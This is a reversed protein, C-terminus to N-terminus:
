QLNMFEKFYRLKELNEPNENERINKQLRELVVDVLEGDHCIGKIPFTYKPTYKSTLEFIKGVWPELEEGEKKNLIKNWMLCELNAYFEGLKKLKIDKYLNYFYYALYAFILVGVVLLLKM